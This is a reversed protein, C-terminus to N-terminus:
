RILTVTGHLEHKKNFVDTMSIKWVYVDIVSKAVTESENVKGDWHDDMNKGLFVMNGWRDFIRMEYKKIGSGSACFYDNNGDNNPTFANPVYFTFGPGITVLHQVTDLCGGANKVILTVMYSTATDASYEHSPSQMTSILSDGDGFNWNWLMADSSSQNNMTIIPALVTAPNPSPEFEAVPLPFVQIFNNKVLNASCGYNTITTLTVSYTGPNTYCHQPNQANVTPTGDGFDWTWSDIASSGTVTSSDSFNVCHPPCGALSDATFNVIPAQNFYLTVSSSDGPCSGSASVILTLTLSDAAYEATTPTYVATLTTNDPNFTGAGGSWTYSNSGAVTGNLTFTSGVCANQSAGANATAVSSITIVMQDAKAGCPGTPDDSTLTLMITGASVEAPSPTYTCNLTTANPTFTGTGGSWTASSAGGGITGALTVAGNCVTQDPGANILPNLTVLVYVSDISSCFPISDKVFYWGTRTSDSSAIIPNRATSIFGNPGLWLYTASPVTDATLHIPSGQCVTDGHALFNCSVSNCPPPTVTVTVQASVTIPASCTTNVVKATYTTTQTPCVSLTPTTGIATNNGDYWTLTYQPAGSPTFRQADNTASWQTPYNRGPVIVGQSGTGDQIGEIAAGSNWGACLPKNEIYIDIINTTEYLVVQSTAIMSNCSFMPVGAWSVVFARCPATGQISWNISAPPTAGVSPDIDHWPAMICNLMDSVNANPMPASIPWTNYNNANAQDFSLIANSGIVVQNYTNGYFQFCFPLAITSSWTDDIGLLVSTGTTYSFPNYAVPAVTYSTTAVTGQVTATLPTCGNCISVNPSVAVQPCAFGQAKILLPSNFNFLLIAFFLVRWVKSLLFSTHNTHKM